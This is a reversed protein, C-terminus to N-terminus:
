NSYCHAWRKPGKRRYAALMQVCAKSLFNSTKKQKSLISITAVARGQWIGLLNLAHIGYWLMINNYTPTM